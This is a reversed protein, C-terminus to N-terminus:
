FRLFTEAVKKCGLVCLSVYSETRNFRKVYKPCVRKLRPMSPDWFEINKEYLNTQRMPFTRWEYVCMRTQNKKKTYDDCKTKQSWLAEKSEERKFHAAHFDAM